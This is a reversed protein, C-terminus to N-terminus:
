QMISSHKLLIKVQTVLSSAYNRTLMKFNLKTDHRTTKQSDVGPYEEREGFLNTKGDAVNCCHLFIGLQFAQGHLDIQVTVVLRLNRGPDELQDPLFLDGEARILHALPWRSHRYTNILSLSTLGELWRLFHRVLDYKLVRAPATHVITLVQHFWGDERPISSTKM